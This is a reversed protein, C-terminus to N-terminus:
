GHSESRGVATRAFLYARCSPHEVNPYPDREIVEHDLFGAEALYGSMEGYIRRAYEEAVRDYSAQCAALTAQSV